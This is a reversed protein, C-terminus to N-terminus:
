SREAEVPGRSPEPWCFLRGFVPLRPPPSTPVAIGLWFRAAHSRARSRTGRPAVHRPSPKRDEHERRYAGVGHEPHYPCCYVADLPAHEAEFRARMWRTLADFDAMSYLGRGIGSQNTIVVLRYGQSVAMRCLAFIGDVWRVDDSRHLFGVEKNIVGDRDLFLAPFLAPSKM